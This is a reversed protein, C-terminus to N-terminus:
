WRFRARRKGGSVQPDLMAILVERFMQESGRGSKIQVWAEDIERITNDIFLKRRDKTVRRLLPHAEIAAKAAEAKRKVRLILGDTSVAGFDAGSQGM